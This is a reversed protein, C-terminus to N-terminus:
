TNRLKWDMLRRANEYATKSLNDETVKERGIIWSNAPSDQGVTRFMTYTMRSAGQKTRTLKKSKPTYNWNDLTSQGKRIDLIESLTITDSPRNMPRNRAEDYLRRPMKRTKVPIPISMYWKGQKNFKKKSSRAFIPKMDIIGQKALRSETIELYKPMVSIGVDPEDESLEQAVDFLTMQVYNYGAEELAKGTNMFIPDLKKKVGM